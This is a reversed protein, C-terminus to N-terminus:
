GELERCPAGGRTLRYQTEPTVLRPPNRNVGLHSRSPPGTARDASLVCAGTRREVAQQGGVSDFCRRNVPDLGACLKFVDIRGFFVRDRSCGPAAGNEDKLKHIALFSTAYEAEVFVHDAANDCVTIYKRDESIQVSGYENADEWGTAPAASASAPIAIAAAVGCLLAIRAFM